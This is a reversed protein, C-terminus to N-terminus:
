LRYEYSEVMYCESNKDYYTNCVVYYPETDFKKLVEQEVLEWGEEVIVGNEAEKKLTEESITDFDAIPSIAKDIYDPTGNVLIYEVQNDKIVAKYRIPTQFEGVMYTFTVSGVEIKDNQQININSSIEFRDPDFNEDINEKIYHAIEKTCDDMSLFLIPEQIDFRQINRDKTNVLDEEKIKLSRLFDSIDVNVGRDERDPDYNYSKNKLYSSLQAFPVWSEIAKPNVYSEAEDAAMAADIISDGFYLGRVFEFIWTNGDSNKFAEKWGIASKAGYHNVAMNTISPKSSTEQATNCGVFMILQVSSLDKTGLGVLKSRHGKNNLFTTDKADQCIGCAYENGFSEFDFWLKDYAGHGDLIVLDSELFDNGYDDNSGSLQTYTPEITYYSDYGMIPLLTRSIHQIPESTDIDNSGFYTGALFASHNIAAFTPVFSGLSVSLTLLLALAKKM